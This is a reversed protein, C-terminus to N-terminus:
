TSDCDCGRNSLLEDVTYTSNCDSCTVRVSVVVSFPGLTIRDTDTLNQLTRRTIAELRSRMKRITEADAEVKQDDDETPQSVGRYKRLYTHIAQHSVFDTSLSKVDIGEGELSRSARTREGESVDDDTLLRYFNQVEGDLPSQGTSELASRLLRRNFWDALDRLSEREGDEGLWRRELEGGTGDLDYEEILRGVKSRRGSGNTRGSNSADDVM